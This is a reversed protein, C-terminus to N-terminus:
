KVVGDCFPCKGESDFYAISHIRCYHPVFFYEPAVTPTVWNDDHIMVVTSKRCKECYFRKISSDKTIGGGEKFRTVEFSKNDRNRQGCHICDVIFSMKSGEVFRYNQTFDIM